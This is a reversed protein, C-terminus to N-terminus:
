SGKSLARPHSRRHLSHGQQRRIITGHRLSKRRRRRRHQPGQLEQRHLAERPPKEHGHHNHRPQPTALPQPDLRPHRRGLPTPRPPRRALQRFGRGGERKTANSCTRITTVAINRGLTEYPNLDIEFYHNQLPASALGGALQSKYDQWTTLSRVESLFFTPVVEIIYSYVLGLCGMSILAAQFWDDDQRLEQADGPVFKAPDTIGDKPEIQYVKGTESVLIIARVLSALNGSDKGSGHTGTTIAGVLTQGDYAGMTALAKGMKDLQSNLDKITIGSEVILPKNMGHPDLLIGDTPCINSFSHGSGVARVNLKQESGDKVAQVLDPLGKPYRLFKPTCKQQGICNEWTTKPGPRPRVFEDGPPKPVGEISDKLNKIEQFLEGNLSPDITRRHIEEALTTNTQDNDFKQVLEAASLNQLDM